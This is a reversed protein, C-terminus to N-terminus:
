ESWFPRVEVSGFHAVPHRGAIELAEQRGGCEIIDFGAIQEKTEAFPGDTVLREGDRVRVTAAQAVGELQNGDLRRTGTEALWDEIDPIKTEDVVVNPEACILLLYKM